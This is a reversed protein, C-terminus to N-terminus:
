FAFVIQQQLRYTTPAFDGLPVFFGQPKVDDTSLLDTGNLEIRECRPV